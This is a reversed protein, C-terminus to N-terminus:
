PPPPVEHALRRFFKIVFRPRFILYSFAQPTPSPSSNLCSPFFVAGRGGGRCLGPRHERPFLLRLLTRACRAGRKMQAQAADAYRMFAELSQAASAEQVLSVEATTPDRLGVEKVVLLQNMPKRGACRTEEFAASYIRLAAAIPQHLLSLDGSINAGFTEFVHKEITRIYRVWAEREAQYQYQLMRLCFYLPTVVVNVLLQWIVWPVHATCSDSCLVLCTYGLADCRM